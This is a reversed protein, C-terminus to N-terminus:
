VSKRLVRAGTGWNDTSVGRRTAGLTLLGIGLMFLSLMCKGSSDMGLSSVSCGGKGDDSDGGVDDWGSCDVIACNVGGDTNPRDLCSIGEDKVEITKSSETYDSHRENVITYTTTGPSVCEDVIKYLGYWDCYDKVYCEPIADGDCDRCKDPTEECNVNDSYNYNRVCVNIFNSVEEKESEWLIKNEFIVESIGEKERTLTYPQNVSLYGDDPIALAINVDQGKQILSYFHPMPGSDAVAVRTFFPSVMTVFAMSLVARTKHM